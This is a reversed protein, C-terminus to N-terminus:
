KNKPNRLDLEPVFIWDGKDLKYGDYSFDPGYFRYQGNFIPESPSLHDFVIMKLKDDYRLMMNASASYRFIHRYITKRDQKFVPAGFTAKKGSLTMIDIIRTKVLGDNSKYGLLTYSTNSRNNTEILDTYLAGYWKDSSTKAREPTKIEDTRDVLPIITTGNNNRTLVAGKAYSAFGETPVIFTCIRMQKDKSTLTMMRKFASWDQNFLKDDTWITALRSDIQDLLQNKNTVADRQHLLEFLVMTKIDLCEMYQQGTQMGTISVPQLQQHTGPSFTFITDAPHKKVIPVMIDNQFSCVRPQNEYEFKVLWRIDYETTNWKKQIYLIQMSSDPLSIHQINAPKWNSISNKHTTKFTEIAEALWQNYAFDFKGRDQEGIIEGLRADIDALRGDALITAPLLILFLFINIIKM